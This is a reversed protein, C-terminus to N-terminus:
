SVLVKRSLARGYETRLTPLPEDALATELATAASANGPHEPAAWVDALLYATCWRAGADHDNHLEARLLEVSAATVHHGPHSDATHQRTPACAM